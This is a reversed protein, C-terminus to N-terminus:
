LTSPGRISDRHLRPKGCRDLRVRPSVWGGICHSGPRERPAFFGPRPTSWGFKCPPRSTVTCGSFVCRLSLKFKCLVACCATFHFIATQCCHGPYHMRSKGCGCFKTTNETHSVCATVRGLLAQCIDCRVHLRMRKHGADLHVYPNV